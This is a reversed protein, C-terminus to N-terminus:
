HDYLTFRTSVAIYLLLGTVALASAAAAEVMFFIGLRTGFDFRAHSMLQNSNFKHSPPKSDLIIYQVAVM